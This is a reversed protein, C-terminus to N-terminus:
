SAAIELKCCAEPNITHGTYRWRFLFEVVGTTKSTYIDRILTIGLRDLIMYAERVNGFIVPFTGAGIAPMNPCLEVPWGMLKPQEGQLLLQRNILYHGDGGKLTVITQMTNRSTFYVCQTALYQEKIGYAIKVLADGNTLTAAEGQAIHQTVGVLLGQPEAVGLGNLFLNGEKVAKAIGVKRTMEGELPYAPDELMKSSAKYYVYDEGTTLLRKGWKTATEETRTSHETAQNATTEASEYPVELQDGSSLTVVNAYKRIKDVESAIKIIHNYYTPPVVLAGADSLVDTYMTKKEFENLKAIAAGNSKQRIAEGFAKKIEIEQDADTSIVPAGQMKKEIMDLRKVEAEIREQLVKMESTKQAEKDTMTKTLNEHKEQLTVLLKNTEIQLNKLEDSMKIVEM